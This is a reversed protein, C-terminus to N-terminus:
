RLGCSLGDSTEIRNIARNQQTLGRFNSRFGVRPLIGL